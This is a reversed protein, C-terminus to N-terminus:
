AAEGICSNQAAITYSHEFSYVRCFFTDNDLPFSKTLPKPLGFAGMGLAEVILEEGSCTVQLAGDTDPPFSDTVPKTLDPIEFDPLEVVMEGDEYAIQLSEDMDAFFRNRREMTVEDPHVSQRFLIDSEENTLFYEGNRYDM